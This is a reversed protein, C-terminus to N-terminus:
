CIEENAPRRVKLIQMSPEVMTAFLALLCGLLENSTLSEGNLFGFFCAFLLDLNFIVSSRTNGVRNQFKTQLFLALASCFTAMFIVAIWVNHALLPAVGERAPVYSLLLTGFVLQWFVLAVRDVHVSETFKGTAVISLAISLAALLGWLYGASLNDLNGGLIIYAAVIGLGVSIMDAVTIKRKHAFLLIFPVILINLSVCFATTASSIHSLAHAQSVFSIIYLISLLFSGAIAKPSAYRIRSWAFPLLLLMAVFFRAFVYLEPSVFEIADHTIPFGMGWFIPIVFIGLTAGKDSHKIRMQGWGFSSCARCLAITPYTLAYCPTAKPRVRPNKTEYPFPINIIHPM